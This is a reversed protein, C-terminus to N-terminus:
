IVESNRSSIERGPSKHRELVLVSMGEACLEAAVSLGVVGAGVIAADWSESM